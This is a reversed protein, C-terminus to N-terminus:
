RTALFTHWRAEETQLAIGFAADFEREIDARHADRSGTRFFNKMRDMGRDDVVFRVFSGAMPYSRTDDMKRFSDTEMMDVVGPLTGARFDDAAWSHISRNNWLPDFQGHQPDVQMAVAIGENFFDTPRGILATVVHVVEHNDWPWITHVAFAPPDAWGNTQRGTVQEMHSRDRYKYYEIPQDITIGFQAIMWAHYQEQADPAVADGQATHFVYHTSTSRIPLASQLTTASPAAPSSGCGTFLLVSTAALFGFLGRM